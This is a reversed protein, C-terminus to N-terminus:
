RLFLIAVGAVAIFAGTVARFSLKEKYVFYVMPLMIVPVTAMITSAIGVKTFAIAFFSFTIGLYPGVLTGLLTLGLSKFDNRYVKIPNKYVKMFTAVPIMLLISVTIRVLTAVFGNIEGQEFALKAFILGGGQGVAGLFAYIVGKKNLKQRGTAGESKELVVIAVGFLTVFIGLIGWVTLTEGLVFFALIAAIAPALSMLLMSFRPNIYQFSKFLFSDGFVLGIIGSIALYIYQLSSLRLSYGMVSITIILLVTAFLMRNINVQLSGIRLTAASFVIATISWLFATFLASLEGAYPFPAM